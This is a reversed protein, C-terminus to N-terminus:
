EENRQESLREWIETCGAGNELGDLHERAEEDRENKREDDIASEHGDRLRESM